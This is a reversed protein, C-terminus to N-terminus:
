VNEDEIGSLERRNAPLQQPFFFYYLMLQLSRSFRYLLVPVVLVIAIALWMALRDSLIGSVWLIAVPALFGVLTMAYNMAMAGLFFGEDVEIKLSCEPCDQNLKLSWKSEFM